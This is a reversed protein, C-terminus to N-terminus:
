YKAILNLTIHDAVKLGKHTLQLSNEKNVTYGKKQLEAIYNLQNSSFNYLYEKKLWDIDLGERTRLQLMLYEEALQHLTLNETIREPQKDTLYSKIDQRIHWREAFSSKEPWWFSHAGPGMGLYNHHNWYNVNHIAKHEKRCYNSIEYQFIGTEKFTQNIYDYHQATVEDDPPQLRGLKKQRGLRTDPEITLSYASIHPPSFKLFQHVDKALDDISQGPNGYILDVSWTPFGAECLLRISQLAEEPSHARHMFKLLDPQFSQIGMSPRSIGTNKLMKLYEASVDDPNLEFTFEELTFTFVDNLSQIIAQLQEENLLSPTGGGIYLTNVPNDSFVTHKYLQIEACLKDVFEPLLKRRTIFYFDCYSCAQKCFPIHLYIGSM